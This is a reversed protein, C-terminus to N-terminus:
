GFMKASMRDIEIDIADAVGDYTSTPLGQTQCPIFYKTGCKTCIDEVVHAIEEQSWDVRDVVMSDIGTMFSIDGGYEKVLASIDNQFTGGQWVDVGMEIM